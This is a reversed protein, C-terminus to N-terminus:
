GSVLLPIGYRPTLLEFPRPQTVVPYGSVPRLRFKQAVAAIIMVGELRALHEGICSRPGAGFPIFAFRTLSSKAEWREPIFAEPNPFFRPDRHAIYPSILIVSGAPIEYGGIKCDSVAERVILWAPPYLRIAEDFVSMTYSLKFADVGTPPKGGLTDDLERRLKSQVTPNRALLYLAWSLANATTAHGAVILTAMEDRIQQKTMKQALSEGRPDKSELFVALLDGGNHREKELEEHKRLIEEILADLEGRGADPAHRQVKERLDSAPILLRSLRLWSNSLSSVGSDSELNVGFLSRVVIDRTLKTMEAYVDIVREAGLDIGWAAIMRRTFKTMIDSYGQVSDHSFSPQAVRRQWSHYAGESTLLGEGVLRKMQVVGAAKGFNQNNLVLVERTYDPNNLLYTPKSGIPLCCIDGFKRAVGMLAELQRRGRLQSRLSTLYDRSPTPANVISAVM